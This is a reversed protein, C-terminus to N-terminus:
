NKNKRIIEECLSVYGTLRRNCNDEDKEGFESRFDDISISNTTVTSIREGYYDCEIKWHGYGKQQISLNKENNEAQKITAKM